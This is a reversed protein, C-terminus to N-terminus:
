GDSTVLEYRKAINRCINIPCQDPTSLITGVLQVLVCELLGKQVHKLQIRVDVLQLMVAACVGEDEHFHQHHTM